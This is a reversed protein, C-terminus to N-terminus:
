MSCVAATLKGDEIEIVGYTRESKASGPNLIPVIKSFDCVPVHTHGFVALDCSLEKARSILTFYDYDYKVAYDHGHTLFIKKGLAEIILENKGASFDCNGSVSHFKIHPFEKGLADADSKHDGAHLVMDVGIINNLVKICGSIDRHTDSFVIIRM